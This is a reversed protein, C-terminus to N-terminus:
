RVSRVAIREIVEGVNLELLVDIVGALKLKDEHTRSLCRRVFLVKILVRVEGVRSQAFLVSKGLTSLGSGFISGDGVRHALELSLVKDRGHALRMDNSVGLGGGDVPLGLVVENGLVGALGALIVIVKVTVESREEM